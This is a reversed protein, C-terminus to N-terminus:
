CCYGDPEEEKKVIETSVMRERRFMNPRVEEIRTVVMQFLYDVGYGTVASTECYISQAIAALAEGESTQVVRKDGLDHKNACIVIVINGVNSLLENIWGQVHEFTERSTVDFVIVAAIANRYYMPTLARYREQGATDWLILDILSGRRDYRVTRSAAAVTPGAGETFSADIYRSILSTKGTGTEGLFVVKASPPDASPQM